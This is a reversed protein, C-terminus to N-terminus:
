TSAPLRWNLAAAALNLAVILLCTGAVGVLPVLLAGALLAGLAAGVLDAAYLGAAHAGPERGPMGGAVAFLAGVPVAAAFAYLWLVAEGAAAPSARGALQALMVPLLAALGAIVLALAAIPRRSAPVPVRRAALAAGAALGAMFVTVVIGLQRYLSGYLVQVGLLLVLELASAAFGTAFVAKAPATLRLWYLLVGAAALLVIGTAPLAFQSLWLRLRHRCLAPSFDTNLGAPVALARELEALRDPALTVDLYHRNVLRGAIGRAELRSALDADLPAASALFFVREGPVLRVHPFVAAATRHACALLHALEPSVYDAYQGLGFALVGGPALIRRAATMFELTFYRNLQFTAPDPLAVIMVDFPGRAQEIFRRADGAVLTLRPDSLNEPLLSQGTAIIRPDLELATVAGAGARLAERGAGAVAGSVLLVRRPSACAAMAYLVSEEVQGTNGTFVIPVGNEHFTLQGAARTVVLRGYPSAARLVVPERFQWQTTRDDLWGPGVVLITGFVMAGALSAIVLRPAGFDRAVIAAVLCCLAAPVCLLAAHDLYPSLAFTFLAGGALGGLTDAAYVRGIER